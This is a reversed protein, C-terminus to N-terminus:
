HRRSFDRFLETPHLDLAEAIQLIVSLTPVNEGRELIGLYTPSLSAAEALQAQTWARSERIRRITKGFWEADASRYDRRTVEQMTVM